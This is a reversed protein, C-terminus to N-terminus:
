TQSIAINKVICSIASDCVHCRDRPEVRGDAEPARLDVAVADEGEVEGGGRPRHSFTGYHLPGRMLLPLNSM